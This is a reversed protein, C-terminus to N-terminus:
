VQWELASNLRGVRLHSRLANLRILNSNRFDQEMFNYDILGNYIDEIAEHLTIQPTYDGALNEFLSFDVKYSRKDPKADTNISLEVDLLKDRVAQALDKIKFNWENSGTNVVLFPGGNQYNRQSAWIIARAMDKVHILPRLPSGDSLIDIRNTVLANAVFDNLVLDLRMRPSFGCATAFRLCTIIFDESALGELDHEALVKSKAYATLPNLESNESRPTTGAAGYASCSSAFVFHRVGYKKSEKAIKIASERNISYTAEEFEEGMPDNSIAALYIISDIDHLIDYPFRRVDGFYQRNCFVEPLIDQSTLIHSFYGIDYGYIICDQHALRFSTSVIPGVYGLNGIILVKM